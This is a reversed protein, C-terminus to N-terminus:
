TLSCLANAKHLTWDLQVKVLSIALSYTWSIWSTAPLSRENLFSQNYIDKNIVACRFLVLLLSPPISNSSCRTRKAVAALNPRVVGYSLYPGWRPLNIVPKSEHKLLVWDFTVAVMQLQPMSTCASSIIWMRGQLKVTVVYQQNEENRKCTTTDFVFKWWKAMSTWTKRIRIRTYKSVVRSRSKQWTVRGGCRVPDMSWVRQCSSPNKWKRLLQFCSKIIQSTEHSQRGSSPWLGFCKQRVIFHIFLYLTALTKVAQM